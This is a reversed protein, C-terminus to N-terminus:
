PTNGIIESIVAFVLVTNTCTLDIDIAARPSRYAVPLVGLLGAVFATLVFLDKLGFQFRRPQDSMRAPRCEEGDTM